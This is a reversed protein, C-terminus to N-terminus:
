YTHYDLDEKDKAWKEELLRDYEKRIEERTMIGKQVLLNIVAKIEYEEIM